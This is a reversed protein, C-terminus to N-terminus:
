PSSKSHQRVQLQWRAWPRARTPAFPGSWAYFPWHSSEHGAVPRPDSCVRGGRGHSHDRRAGEFGGPGAARMDAM